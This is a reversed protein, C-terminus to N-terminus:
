LIPFGLSLAASPCIPINERYPITHSDLVSPPPSSLTGLQPWSGLKVIKHLVLEGDWSSAFLLCDRWRAALTIRRQGPKTDGVHNAGTDPFDSGQHADVKKMWRPRQLHHSHCSSTLSRKHAYHLYGTHTWHLRWILLHPFSTATHSEATCYVFNVQFTRKFVQFIYLEM